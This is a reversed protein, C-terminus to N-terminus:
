ARAPPADAKSLGNPCWPQHRAKSADWARRASRSRARDIRPHFVHFTCAKMIVLRPELGALRLRFGLEVGALGWSEFDENWGNVRQLDARWVSLNNGRANKNKKLHQVLRFSWDGPLYLGYPLNRHKGRLNDIWDGLGM